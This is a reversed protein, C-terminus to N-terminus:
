RSRTTRQERGWCAHHWHRRDDPARRPVVVVHGEGARIEHDCGPCRYEKVAQYPQVRQVDVADWDDVFDDDPFEHEM